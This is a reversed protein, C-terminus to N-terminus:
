TGADERLHTATATLNEGGLGQEVLDDIFRRNALAQPVQLEVEAAHDAILGLDKQAHRLVFTTAAGDPDLYEDRRYELLPAAIASDCFIDYARERDVGSREALVLAESVAQSLGYVITNVALKIAQGAGVPGVHHLPAGMARLVSEAREVTPADGGVLLTLTAGQAAAVSGSVPADLFAADAAAVREGLRRAFRPGVTSMDIAVMGATLGALLGDSGAYVADLASQDALMTVTVDARRAVDAASDAVRADHAAAFSEAKERTRNHVVLPHGAAAINAAMPRGMLGLGVFGVTPKGPM